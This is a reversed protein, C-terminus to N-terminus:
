CDHLNSNEQELLVLKSVHKKDSKRDLVDSKIENENNNELNKTVMEDITYGFYQSVDALFGLSPETKGREYNSLTDRSIAFLGCFEAQTLGARSRVFRINYSVFIRDMDPNKLLLM